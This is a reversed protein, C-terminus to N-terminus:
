DILNYAKKLAAYNNIDVGKIVKAPPIVVFRFQQGGPNAPVNGNSLSYLVTIQGLKYSYNFQTIGYSYPMAAWQQGSGDGIFVQVTGNDVVAQTIQSSAYTAFYSNTTNDFGWSLNTTTATEVYINATGNAGAAGQAGAPGAPGTEGKKCSTLIPSIMIVVLTVLTSLNKIQKKM